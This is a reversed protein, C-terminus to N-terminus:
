RIGEIQEMLDDILSHFSDAEKHRVWDIHIDIVTKYRRIYQSEFHFRPYAKGAELALYYSGKADGKYNIKKPLKVLGMKKKVRDWRNHPM